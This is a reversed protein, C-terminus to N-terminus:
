GSSRLYRRLGKDQRGIDPCRTPTLSSERWKIVVPVPRKRALAEKPLSPFERWHHLYSDDRAAGRSHRGREQPKIRSEVVSVKGLSASWLAPRSEPFTAMRSFCRPIQCDYVQLWYTSCARRIARPKAASPKVRPSLVATTPSLRGASYQAISAVCASPPPATGSYWSEMSFSISYMTSWASARKAITSSWSCTSLSSWTRACHGPSSYTM